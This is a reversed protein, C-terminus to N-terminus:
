LLKKLGPLFRISLYPDSLQTQTVPADSPIPFPNQISNALYPNLIINIALFSYFNYATAASNYFTLVLITIASKELDFSSLNKSLRYSYILSKSIEISILLTPIASISSYLLRVSFYILSYINTM